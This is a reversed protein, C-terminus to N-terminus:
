IKRGLFKSNFGTKIIKSEPVPGPAPTPRPAPAPRPTPTPGPAPRSKRAIISDITRKLNQL